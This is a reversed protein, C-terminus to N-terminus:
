IKFIRSITFGYRFHLDTWKENNYTLFQTESIGAANSLNMHFVHGGTNFEIAFALPNYYKQGLFERNINEPLFFYEASVSVVKNLTYRGALGLALIVNNDEAAVYQRFNYAPTLQASIRDNIKRAIIIQHNYSFRNAQKNFSVPSSPDSSAHMYTYELTALYVVSVPKSNDSTQTLLKTKVYGDLLSSLPSIGKSRAVAINVKDSLGFEFAVRVDRINDLGYLEQIGKDLNDFRHGVRFDMTSKQLMETSHGSIVRTTSFTSFQDIELDVLMSDQATVTLTLIILGVLFLIRKM